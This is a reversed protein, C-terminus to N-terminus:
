SHINFQLLTYHIFLCKTNICFLPHQLIIKYYSVQLFCPNPRFCISTWILIFFRKWIGSTFIVLCKFHNFYLYWSGTIEWLIIIIFVILCFFQFLGWLNSRIYVICLLCLCFPRMYSGQTYHVCPVFLTEVVNEYGFYSQIVWQYYVRLYWWGWVGAIM